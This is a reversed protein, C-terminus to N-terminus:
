ESDCVVFACHTQELSSFLAVYHHDDNTLLGVPGGTPCGVCGGTPCGM